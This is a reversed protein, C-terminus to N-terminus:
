TSTTPNKPLHQTHTTNKKSTIKPHNGIIWSTYLCLVNENKAWCVNNHICLIYETRFLSHIAVNYIYTLQQTFTLYISLVQHSYDLNSNCTDWNIQMWHGARTHMKVRYYWEVYVRKWGWISGIVFNRGMTKFVISHSTVSHLM